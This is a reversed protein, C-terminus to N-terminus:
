VDTEALVGTPDVIQVHDGPGVALAAVPGPLGTGDQWQLEASSSSGDPHTVTLTPPLQGTPLNTLAVVVATTSSSTPPLTEYPVPTLEVLEVPATLETWEDDTAPRADLYPAYGGPSPEGHETLEVFEFRRSVTRRNKFAPLASSIMKVRLAVEAM